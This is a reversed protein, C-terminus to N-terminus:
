DYFAEGKNPHLNLIWYQIIVSFLDTLQDFKRPKKFFGQINYRYAEDITTKSASNAIFVFPTSKWQTNSEENITRKLELGDMGEFDMESIILFIEKKTQLLYKYGDEANKLYVVGVEYGLRHMAEKLFDYEFKYNDILIIEGELKM